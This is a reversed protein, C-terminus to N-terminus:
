ATVFFLQATLDIMHHSLGTSHDIMYRDYVHNLVACSELWAGDMVNTCGTPENHFNVAQSSSSYCCARTNARLVLDDVLGSPCETPALSARGPGFAGTSNEM